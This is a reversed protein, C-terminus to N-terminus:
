ASVGASKIKRFTRMLYRVEDATFAEERKPPGKRMMEAYEVPKKLILDNAVAKKCIQFMMARCQALASDPRGEKRLQRFFQEIDMAKIESLKRRGFHDKLIRFTYRYGERTTPEVNEKHFEFWQDAWENFRIDRGTLMGMARKRM